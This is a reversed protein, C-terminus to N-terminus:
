RAERCHQMPLQLEGPSSPFADAFILKAGGDYFNRHFLHQFFYPAYFPKTVLHHILERLAGHWYERDVRKYIKLLSFLSDSLWEDWAAGAKVAHLLYEVIIVVTGNGRTVNTTASHLALLFLLFLLFLSLLLPFFFLYTRSNQVTKAFTIALM